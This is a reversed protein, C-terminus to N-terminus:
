YHEFIDNLDSEYVRIRTPGSYKYTEPMDRVCGLYYLSAWDEGSLAFADGAHVRGALARLRPVTKGEHEYYWKVFRPVNFDVGLGESADPWVFCSSVPIEKAQPVELAQASVVEPAPTRPATLLNRKPTSGESGTERPEPDVRTLLPKSFDPKPLADYSGTGRESLLSLMVLPTNNHLKFKSERRASAFFEFVLAM